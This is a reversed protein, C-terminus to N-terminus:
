TPILGSARWASPARQAGLAHRSEYSKPGGILEVCHGGSPGRLTLAFLLTQLV